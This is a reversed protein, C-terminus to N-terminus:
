TVPSTTNYYVKPSGYIVRVPQGGPNTGFVDWFLNKGVPINQSEESTIIIDIVPPTNDDGNNVISIQSNASTGTWYATSAPNDGDAKNRIQSRFNWGEISGFSVQQGLENKRYLSLRFVHHQGQVIVPNYKNVIAM